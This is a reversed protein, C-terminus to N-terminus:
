NLFLLQKIHKCLSLGALPSRQCSSSSLQDLVQFSECVDRLNAYALSFMFFDNIVKIFCCYLSVSLNFVSTKVQGRFHMESRNAIQNIQNTSSLETKCLSIFVCSNVLWFLTVSDQKIFQIRIVHIGIKHQHWM